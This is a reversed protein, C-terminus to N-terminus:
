ENERDMKQGSTHKHYLGSLEWENIVRLSKSRKIEQFIEEVFSLIAPHIRRKSGVAEFWALPSDTTWYPEYARGAAIWDCVLEIAYRKPMLLAVPEEGITMVNDVWYEPHHPNHGKHHQWAESYGKEEKEADIPSRTGSWYRASPIFETPSLKSLDHLLGQIPYGARYMLQFVYWKHRMITKFHNIYPNM